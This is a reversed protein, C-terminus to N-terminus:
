EHELQKVAEFPQDTTPSRGMISVAGRSFALQVSPSLQSVLLAHRVLQMKAAYVMQAKSPDDKLLNKWMDFAEAASCGEVYRCMRVPGSM